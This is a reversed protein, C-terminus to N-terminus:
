QTFSKQGASYPPNGIIVNVNTSRQRRIRKHAPEFITDIKSEEHRHRADQLYQPNQELTDAYSIGEFPVYRGGQLSSYTTEINVTAVYYALLMIENAFLDDRYKKYLNNTILGSELLRTLFTGTGAFPEMVKVARDDFGVRFNDNLVHQVSQIIFDIIEVPTYVIGHKEAGKKDAGEFFNGYIKKIFNQRAERTKILELEREADEYFDELDSLEEDMRVKKIMNEFAVSIPNHTTFEGRFLADFVRSMIMHQAIVQITQDETVSKNVLDQLGKHFREVETRTTRDSEIRNKIRTEIMHASRGIKIGYKDYYNIDGVREVLKSKIKDYFKASEKEVVDMGLISVSIRPTPNDNPTSKNLILANIESALNEDHSRLATLVQWVIKFRKNDDLAHHDEIGPPIAVPLIVYGFKKGPVKRMVRGVSQVVDVKSKRPNLFVIGDLKPVDVGESLCRANSLIRCTKPDTNSADLWRMEARRKLANTKGDIHRVEVHSGTPHKKEYAEVIGSFSRDYGDPDKRAGAFMESRDIRNSFAIVKQLLRPTKNDDPYQLGHWVATLLTREDLNLATDDNTIAWQFDADVKDEPVIAIKVRFDSLINQNVADAFSLRHFEPGYKSEDDMSYIVRGSNKKVVDSYVRPTATMYLRKKGRIRSDSHVKTFFSTDEVGTTRHAEDCIILDFKTIGAAESTVDISHYTSFIVTMANEPRNTIYPELSDADTSVPSELETISGDEGTSKDSCVAVYYHQMNANVSWERMSQLILSISPVMYLVIGGVGVQHEAIHLAALTKGTGCAMIMKGRNHMKLGKIVDRVATVQHPRLKKPEKPILNPYKSWDVSSDELHDSQLISCKSDQLIKRAHPTIYDGTYVLINEAFDLSSSKAIFKAVAKMDLNGDDAYCKCQIACLKGDRQEAVLDIGTDIGDNDPWEKWLWVKKFRNAYHKDINFYNKILKEFKTGLDRTSESERRIKELVSSFTRSM